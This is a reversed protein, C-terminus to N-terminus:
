NVWRPEPAPRSALARELSALATELVRAREIIRSEVLLKQRTEPDLGLAFCIRNVTLDLPGAQELALPGESNSLAAQVGQWALALRRETARAEANGADPVIEPLERCLAIRWPNDQTWSEFRVRTTGQLEFLFRGDPLPQVNQMRGACGIEHVPAPGSAGPDSRLGPRLLAMAIEGGSSLAERTMARYRPEFIHLPLVAGPFLVVGPLPFVAIPRATM